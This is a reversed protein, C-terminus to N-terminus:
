RTGSSLLSQSNRGLGLAYDPWWQGARPGGNCTGDSQGPVKVWLFADALPAGTSGTPFPGLAQDPPNCWNGAGAKGRGNRSTDIVYHKGSVLRSVSNGYTISTSTPQFNSVNLSFGDALDIGSKRLRDAIDPASRWAAHGGDIYVTAGAKKLVDTADRLLSFREDRLRLPLCDGAAAADPELIVVVPRNRIGRALEIIWRRYGDADGAGGRSYLGCDRYPINYAVFVTLAGGARSLFGDADRRVDRNWDGLWVALPQAAMQRMLAADASRSRDWEDAQKRAPNDPNVWLRRSSFPNGRAAQSAGRSPTPPLAVTLGIAMTFMAFGRRADRRWGRTMLVRPLVARTEGAPHGHM